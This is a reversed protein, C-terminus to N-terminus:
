NAMPFVEAINAVFKIKVTCFWICANKRWHQKKSMVFCHSGHFVLFYCTHLLWMIEGSPIDKRFMPCFNSLTIPLSLSNSSAALVPFRCVTSLNSVPFGLFDTPPPTSLWLNVLYSMQHQLLSHPIGFSHMHYSIWIIIYFTKFPEEFFVCRSENIYLM